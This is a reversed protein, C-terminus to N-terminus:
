RLERKVDLRRRASECWNKKVSYWIDAAHILNTTDIDADAPVAAHAGPSYNEIWARTVAHTALHRAQPLGIHTYTAPLTVNRVIATGTAAYPESGPYHGAIFDWEMSFGSFEIVSDPIRHLKSLMSWQGLLLRPLPGTAIAAAYPIRLGVVPHLEGNRPDVFATRAEAADELPNWVPIADSFAGALEHLVRIALMGGQSHGILVPRMGEVEYYWALTGALQRSDMFSSTSQRGDRPNAIRDAPYGMAILFEAFPEMTVPGFSGQLLIIRPAPIKALVDAVDKASIKAPDLELLRQAVAPDQDVNRQWAPSEVARAPVPAMAVAVLALVSLATSAAIGKM